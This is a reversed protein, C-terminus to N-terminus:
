SGFVRMHKLDPRRGLWGEYPTIKITTHMCRNPVYAAHLLAASWYRSPLGAGYLLSGTTVALTYNWKGASGNQTPSDAGMPEVVYRKSTFMETRFNASHALERGQDTRIVGGDPSGHITLFAIVLDILPEKSKQLFVWVYRSVKDM